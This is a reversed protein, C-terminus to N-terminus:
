EMASVFGFRKNIFATEYSMGGMTYNLYTLKASLVLEDKNIVGSFEEFNILNPSEFKMYITNNKAVFKALESNEPSCVKADRLEAVTDRIVTKSLQVIENTFFKLAIGNNNFGLIFTGEVNEVNNSQRNEVSIYLGDTRVSYIAKNRKLNKFWM